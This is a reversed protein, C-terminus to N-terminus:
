ASYFSDDSSGTDFETEEESCLDNDLIKALIDDYFTHYLIVYALDKYNIEEEDEIIIIYRYFKEYINIANELSTAYKIILKINMDETNKSTFDKIFNRFDITNNIHSKYIISNIFNFENFSSMMQFAM